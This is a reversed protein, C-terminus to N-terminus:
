SAAVQGQQEHRLEAAAHRVAEIIKEYGTCRCLNGALAERITADDPVESHHEVARHVLDHVAVVLGPTCFGCQVAGCAVFARQVVDPGALGEATRVERGEAQAAAVLCSCVPDGDLYITCSGCEGQECANKSGPLGFQERLATLLSAGPSVGVASRSEGNVTLTLRVVDDTTQKV